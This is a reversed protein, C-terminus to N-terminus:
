SVQLCQPASPTVVRFKPNAKLTHYLRQAREFAANIATEYYDLGYYQLSLFLKLADGKRGCQPTLQGLDYIDVQANPDEDLDTHFLSANIAASPHCLRPCLRPSM